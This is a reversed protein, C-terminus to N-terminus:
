ASKLLDVHDFLSTRRMLFVAESAPLPRSVLYGQVEECALRQLAALQDATEVGEAVVRMKLAKAMSVIASFFIEGGEGNCLQATFARDVKLVQMNLKHLLSLSSYGTGFDDIHIQVGLASIAEVEQHVREFDRMVASETLEVEILSSDLEYRKLCDAIFSSVSGEDFQRASVNISIPVVPLQSSKWHALQRCVKDLMLKGLEIIMGTREALPIFKDPAILGREPHIWRVLAEMGVLQGTYTDVRPQYYAVFHDDRIARSLERENDLRQEMEDYLSKDYLCYTNKGNTKAAYMAIDANKLLTEADLGDTPYVSIGMSVKINLTRQQVEFSDSFTQMIRRAVPAVDEPRALSELVLTFEDGGLRAVSDGPRLAAQLRRAAIQLLQDGASHGLTDNINKFDDVDIFLVALSGGNDKTKALAAPLHRMLWHRNPLGTLTDSTAMRNLEQEHAKQETVDRLTVALGDEARAMRVHLWTRREGDDGLLELDAEHFGQVFALTAYRMLAPLCPRLATVGSLRAKLLLTKTVGLLSAGRENCDDIGFDMADGNDNIIARWMYYGDNGFETAARYTNRVVELRHTKWALRLSLMVAIVTFIFLFFSVVIGVRQMTGRHATYHALATDQAMGVVAIFPFTGLPHTAVYRSKGDYFWQKGQLLAVTADSPAMRLFPADNGSAEHNRRVVHVTGDESAMAQFGDEGLMPSNATSFFYEPTVSVVIMGDFRGRMDNIRRTMRIITRGSIKGQMPTGIRLADSPNTAHYHFADSDRWSIKQSFPYSSTLPLGSRDVITIAAAHQFDFVGQRQPGELRYRGASHTWDYRLQLTIQDVREITRALYEAYSTSLSSVDTMAEKELAAKESHLESLIGVWLLSALFLTFLPWGLIIHLNRLFFTTREARQIDSYGALASRGRLSLRRLIRGSFNTHTM